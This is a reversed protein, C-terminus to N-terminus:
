YRRWPHPSRIDPWRMLAPPVWRERDAGAQKVATAGRSALPLCQRHVALISFIDQPM